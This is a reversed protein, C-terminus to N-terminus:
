KGRSRKRALAHRKRLAAAQREANAQVDPHDIPKGLRRELKSYQQNAKIMEIVEPTYNAYNLAGLYAYLANMRADIPAITASVMSAKRMEERERRRAAACILVEWIM